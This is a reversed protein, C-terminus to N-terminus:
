SIISVSIDVADRDRLAIVAGRVLYASMGGLPSKGVCTISAERTFGLEHLRHTMACECHAACIIKGTCGISVDCLRKEM